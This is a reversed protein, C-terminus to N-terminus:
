QQSRVIKPMKYSGNTLPFKPGYFRPTLRFVGDPTPLWNKLQKSDSPKKHQLYLKL